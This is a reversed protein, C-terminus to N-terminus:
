GDDRWRNTATDRELAFWAGCGHVHQWREQAFGPTGSRFYLFDTWQADTAADPQPPRAVPAHDSWVFEGVDRRGCHPCAIRM